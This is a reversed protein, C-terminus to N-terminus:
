RSIALGAESLLDSLVLEAALRDRALAAAAEAHARYDREVAALAAAATEADDFTLLGSGTPLSSSFGTDQLVVPRGAALYCASRCSFWGSRTAVYVNKAVSFEGRSRAVYDRYSHLTRSVAESSATAMMMANRAGSTRTAAM